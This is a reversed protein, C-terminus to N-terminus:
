TSKNEWSLRNKLFIEDNYLQEDCNIFGEIVKAGKLSKLNPNNYCQLIYVVPPCGKMTELQNNYCILDEWLNLPCGVLNKLKNHHCLFSWTVEGFQVPIEKLNQKSIDVEGKVDVTLDKNISYDEIKMLDLWSEIEKLTKLM